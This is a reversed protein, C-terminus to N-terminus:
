DLIARQASEPVHDCLWWMLELDWGPQLRDLTLIVATPVLVTMAVCIVIRKIGPKTGIEARLM